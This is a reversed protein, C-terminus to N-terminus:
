GVLESITVRQAPECPMALRNWLRDAVLEPSRLDGNNKFDIFRSVTPFDQADCRRIQEQMETDMIGPDFIMTSFPSQELKQEEAIARIWNEMGAKVLCYISWGSKGTLAAGSSIQVITKRCNHYEFANLISGTLAATGGLIDIGSRIEHNLLTKALGIPSITGANLIVRIEEYSNEQLNAIMDRALEIGDPLDELDCFVSYDEEGSRSLELIEWGDKDALDCISKGLGRSGGTIILLKM